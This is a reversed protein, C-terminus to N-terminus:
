RLVGQEPQHLALEGKVHRTPVGVRSLKRQNTRFPHRHSGKTEWALEILCVLDSSFLPWSPWLELCVWFENRSGPPRRLFAAPRLGRGICRRPNAPRGVSGGVKGPKGYVCCPCWGRDSFTAAAVLDFDGCTAQVKPPVPTTSPVQRTAPVPLFLTPSCCWVLQYALRGVAASRCTSESARGPLQDEASKTARPIGPRPYEAGAL